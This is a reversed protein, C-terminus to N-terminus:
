GALPPLNLSTQKRRLQYGVLGTGILIMMWVDAEPVAAVNIAGTWYGGVKKGTSGTVEFRYVGTSLDAFSFSATFPNGIKAVDTWSHPATLKELEVSFSSSIVNYASSFSGSLNSEDTLSFRVFDAFNRHKGITDSFNFPGTLDNVNHLHITEAQALSVSGFGFIMAASLLKAIKM